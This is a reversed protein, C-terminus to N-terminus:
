RRPVVALLDNLVDVFFIEFASRAHRRVHDAIAALRRYALDALCETEILFRETLKRLDIRMVLDEGALLEISTQLFVTEVRCVTELQLLEGLHIGADEVVRSM